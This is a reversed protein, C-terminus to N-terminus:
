TRALAPRQRLLAQVPIPAQKRPPEDIPEARLNQALWEGEGLEDIAAIQEALKQRWYPLVAAFHLYLVSLTVLAEV